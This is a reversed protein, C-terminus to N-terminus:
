QIVEDLNALDTEINEPDSHIPIENEALFREFPLRQMSLLFAGQGATIIEQEYLRLVLQEMLM